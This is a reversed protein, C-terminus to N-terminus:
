LILIRLNDSLGNDGITKERNIINSGYVFVKMDRGKLESYKEKLKKEAESFKDNMGINITYSKTSNNKCFFKLEIKNSNDDIINNPIIKNEIYQENFNNNKQDEIEKLNPPYSFHPEVFSKPIDDLIIHNDNKNLKEKSDKKTIKEEIKFEVGWQVTLTFFLIILDVCLIFIGILCIIIIKTIFSNRSKDYYELVKNRPKDLMILYVKEIKLYFCFYNIIMGILALLKCFFLIIGNNLYIIRIDKKNLYLMIQFAFHISSWIFLNYSILCFFNDINRPSKFAKYTKYLPNNTYDLPPFEEEFEQLNRDTFKAYGQAFIHFKLDNKCFNHKINQDKVLNWKALNEPFLINEQNNGITYIQEFNDEILCENNDPFECPLDNINNDKELCVKNNNTIEINTIIPYKSDKGYIPSLYQDGPGMKFYHNGLSQAKSKTNIEIYNLPCNMENSVYLYQSSNKFLESCKHKNKNEDFKIKQLLNKFTYSDDKIREICISKNGYFKVFHGNYQNKIKLLEFNKPCDKGDETLTLNKILPTNINEYINKSFDKYLNLKIKEEKSQENFLLYKPSYLLIISIGALSVFFYLIIGILKYEFSHKIAYIM